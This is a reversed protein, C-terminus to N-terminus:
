RPTEVRESQLRVAFRQAEGIREVELAIADVSQQLNELRADGLPMAAVATSRARAVIMWALIAGVFALAIHVGAHPVEHLYAAYVGGAVNALSFLVAIALWIKTWRTM